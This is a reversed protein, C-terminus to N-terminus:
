PTTADDEQSTPSIGHGFFREFCAEYQDEPIWLDRMRETEKDLMTATAKADCRCLPLVAQKLFFFLAVQNSIQAHPSLPLRAQTEQAADRPPSQM